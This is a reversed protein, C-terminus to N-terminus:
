NNLKVLELGLEEAALNIHKQTSKSWYGLQFLRTKKDEENYVVTAVHTDYSWIEDNIQRLNM